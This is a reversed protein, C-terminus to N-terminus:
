NWSSVGVLKEGLPTLEATTGFKEELRRPDGPFAKGEPTLRERWMKIRHDLYESDEERAPRM